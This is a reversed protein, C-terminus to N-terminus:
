KDTMYSSQNAKWKGKAVGKDCSKNGFPYWLTHSLQYSKKDFTPSHTSTHVHTLKLNTKFLHCTLTTTYDVIPSPRVFTYSTERFGLSLFFGARLFGSCVCTIFAGRLSDSMDVFM